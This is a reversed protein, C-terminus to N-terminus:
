PQDHARPGSRLQLRQQVGPEAAPHLLPRAPECASASRRGARPRGGPASRLYSNPAAFGRGRASDAASSIAPPTAVGGAKTVGPVGGSVAFGERVDIDFADGALRVYSDATPRFGLRGTLNSRPLSRSSPPAPQAPCTPRCLTNSAGLWSRRTAYRSAPMTSSGAASPARQCAARHSPSEVSPSWRSPWSVLAVSRAFRRLGQIM